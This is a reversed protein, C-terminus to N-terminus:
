ISFAAVAQAYSAPDGVTYWKGKTLPFACVSGGDSIRKIVSDVFWIENDRGTRSERLNAILDPTVLYRGFAALNSDTEHQTPKEILRTVYQIGDREGCEIIGFQSKRSPEVPQAALVPCQTQEFIRVLGQSVNEGFVVDDGFAYICPATGVQDAALRLPTGNGYNGSQNIFVFEAEALSQAFRKVPPDQAVKAPAAISPDFLNRMLDASEKAVVIVIRQVGVDLFEWVLHVIAPVRGLPFLEQPVAKSAPWM